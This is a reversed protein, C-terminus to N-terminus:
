KKKGNVENVLNWIVLDFVKNRLKVDKVFMLRLVGRLRELILLIIIDGEVIM